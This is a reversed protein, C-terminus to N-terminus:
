IIRYISAKEDKYTVRDEVDFNAAEMRASYLQVVKAKFKIGDAM